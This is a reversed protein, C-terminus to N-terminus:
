QKEELEKIRSHLESYYNINDMAVAVTDSLSQLISIEYGTPVHEDSWYNGFAAVPRFKGVPVILLSKVFTPRYADVPIREDNNYWVVM